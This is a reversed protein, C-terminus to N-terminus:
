NGKIMFYAHGEVSYSVKSICKHTGKSDRIRAKSSTCQQDKEENTWLNAIQNWFDDFFPFMRQKIM